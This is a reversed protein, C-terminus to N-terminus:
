PAVPLYGEPMEYKMPGSFNARVTLGPCLNVFPYMVESTWLPLQFAGAGPIPEGNLTFTLKAEELNVAVGYVDGVRPATMREFLSAYGTFVETDPSTRASVLGARPFCGRPYTLLEYEMYYKGCSHGVSARVGIPTAPMQAADVSAVLREDSLQVATSKHDSWQSKGGEVISRCKNECNQNGFEYRSLEKADSCFSKLSVSDFPVRAVGPEGSCGQFSTENQSVRARVRDIMSKFNMLSTDATPEWRTEIFPLVVSLVQHSSPKGAVQKVSSATPFQASALYVYFLKAGDELSLEWQVPERSLLFLSMPEATAAVKVAVKGRMMPRGDPYNFLFVQERKSEKVVVIHTNAATPRDGPVYFCPRVDVEFTTTVERGDIDLFTYRFTDRGQVEFNSVYKATTDSIQEFTGLKPAEVLTVRKVMQGSIDLTFTESSNAKVVLSRTIGYGEANGQLAPKAGDSHDIKCATFSLLSLILLLRAIKM